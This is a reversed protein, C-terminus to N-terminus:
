ASFLKTSAIAGPPPVAPPGTPAGPATTPHIHTGLWTVLPTAMAVPGSQGGANIKPATMDIPSGAKLTMGKAAEVTVADGKATLDKTAELNMKDKTKILVEKDVELTFKEKVKWEVDKEVKWKVNGEKDFFLEIKKAAGDKGSDNVILSLITKDDGEHSGIELKAVAKPDDSFERALIRLNAPRKGDTTSEERGITWELDGGLTNLAYNECFDRVTNEIPIFIRQCLPGGGIQVVGGRRLILFNEDRTGLYIDGPNLDKKKARYDGEDSGPAWGLVFPRNGDSPFCIWVLSGVEPMFYIGEGNVFHQYPTMFTVGTQPKKTFQTTVTLTYSAMDVDLVRGHEITAAKGVSETVAM